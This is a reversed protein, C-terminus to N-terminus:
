AGRGDEAGCAVMYWGMQLRRTDGSGDGQEKVFDKTVEM